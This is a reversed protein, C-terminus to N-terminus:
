LEGKLARTELESLPISVVNRDLDGELTSIVVGSSNDGFINTTTRFMDLIRDIGTVIAIEELPLGVSELVLTLMILGGGSISATGISALEATLVITRQQLLTM